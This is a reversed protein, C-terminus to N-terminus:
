ECKEKEPNDQKLELDLDYVMYSALARPLGLLPVRQFLSRFPNLQLLNARIRNRCGEKLSYLYGNTDEESLCNWDVDYVTRIPACDRNAGNDKLRFDSVASSFRKSSEGATFLLMKLEQNKRKSKATHGLLANLGEDNFTNIHGGAELLMKVYEPQNQKAALNLPTDGSSNRKNVDAGSEILLKVCESKCDNQEWSAIGIYSYREYPQDIVKMLATENQENSANVNMGLKIFYKMAELKCEMRAFMLMNNGCDDLSDISAGKNILFEICRIHGGSAAKMLVTVKNSHRNEHISRKENIDIGSELFVKLCEIHEYQAAQLFTEDVNDVHPLLLRVCEPHDRGVAFGLATGYTSYHNVNAGSEILFKM